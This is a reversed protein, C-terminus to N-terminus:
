GVSSSWLVCPRVCQEVAASPLQGYAIIHRASPGVQSRTVDAYGVCTVTSTQLRALVAHPIWNFTRSFKYAIQVCALANWSNVSEIVIM